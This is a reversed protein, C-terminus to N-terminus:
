PQEEPSVLLLFRRQVDPERESEAEAGAESPDFGAPEPAVVEPEIVMGFEDFAEQPVPDQTNATRAPGQSFWISLDILGTQNPSSSIAIREVGRVVVSREIGRETQTEISLHDEEHVLAVTRPAGLLGSRDSTGPVVQREIWRIRGPSIEVDAVRCGSLGRDLRDFVQSIAGLRRIEVDLRENSMGLRVSVPVMLGALLAVLALALILEFITFGRVRM